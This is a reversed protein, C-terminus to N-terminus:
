KKIKLKNAYIDNTPVKYLSRLEEVRQVVESNDAKGLLASFHQIAPEIKDKRMQDFVKMAEDFSDAKKMINVYTVANPTIKKEKMDKLLKLADSLSTTKSILTTYTFHDPKVNADYMSKLISKCESYTLIFFTRHLMNNVDNIQKDKFNNSSTIRTFESVYKKLRSEVNVKIQGNLKNQRIEEINLKHEIWGRFFMSSSHTVAIIQCNKNLQRIYQILDRQWEIHLSIEPEDLLLIFPQGDQILTQLLIYFIQKEGSSLQKHTLEYQQNILKFSFNDESFSKGTDKFLANITDIFNKQQGFLEAIMEGSPLSNPAKLAEEFKKYKRNRYNSFKLQLESILDDLSNTIDFTSIKNILIDLYDINAPFREGSSDVTVFSDDSFHITLESILSFYKIKAEESIEPQLAEYVLNLITSKGSGNIGVLVNVDEKLDWAIDGKQWLNKIYIQKIVM